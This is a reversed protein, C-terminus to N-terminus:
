RLPWALQCCKTHGPGPVGPTRMVPTPKSPLGSVKKLSGPRKPRSFIILEAWRLRTSASTNSSRQGSSCSDTPSRSRMMEFAAADGCAEPEAVAAAPPKLGPAKGAMMAPGSASATGGVRTDVSESPPADHAGRGSRRGLQQIEALQGRASIEHATRPLRAQDAAQVCPLRLGHVLQRGIWAPLEDVVGCGGHLERDNPRAVPHAQATM